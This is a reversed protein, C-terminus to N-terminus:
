TLIRGNSLPYLTQLLENKVHEQGFVISDFKEKLKAIRKVTLNKYNYNKIELTIESKQTELQEVIKKPPNHLFVQEFALSEAYLFIYNTFGEIFHEKVGSYEDSYVILSKFWTLNAENGRLMLDMNTVLPTLSRTHEEPIFKDFEELPGNFVFFKM